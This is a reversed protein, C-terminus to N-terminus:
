KVEGLRKCDAAVADPDHAVELMHQIIKAREDRRRCAHVGEAAADINAWESGSALCDHWEEGVAVENLGREDVLKALAAAQLAAYDAWPHCERIVALFHQHLPRPLDYLEVKVKAKPCGAKWRMLTGLYERCANRRREDWWRNDAPYAGVSGLIGRSPSEPLWAVGPLPPPECPTGPANVSTM